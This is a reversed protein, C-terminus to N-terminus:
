GFPSGSPPLFWLSSLVAAPRISASARRDEGSQGRSIHVSQVLIYEHLGHAGQSHVLVRSSSQFLLLLPLLLIFLLRLLPFSSSPPHPHPHPPLPPPPPPLLTLDCILTKELMALDFLDPCCKPKTSIVFHPQSNSSTSEQTWSWTWTHGLLHSLSAEMSEHFLVCDHRGGGSPLNRVLAASLFWGSRFWEMNM